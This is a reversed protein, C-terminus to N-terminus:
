RCLVLRKKVVGNVTKIELLYISPAYGDLDLIVRDSRDYGRKELVQGMMNTLRLCEIGEAEVTVTGQTPNPFVNVEITQDGVGFFGANIVFDREIEGCEPASFNATLTATGPTGVFVRCYNDQTEVIQWDSNSLSWVIDGQVDDPNIEYRYIGNVLNSAVFVSPNGTIVGIAESDKIDLRIVQVISDCGAHTQLTELNFFSVLINM